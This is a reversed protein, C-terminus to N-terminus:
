DDRGPEVDAGGEDALLEPPVHADLMAITGEIRAAGREVAPVGNSEGLRRVDAAAAALDDIRRRLEEVDGNTIGDTDGM